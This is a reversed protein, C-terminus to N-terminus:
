NIRRVEIREVMRASRAPKLDGEVVLRFPGDAEPIPAGDMEDAVIVRAARVAADTEALSLAVRYGDRASVLVIHTLEAGRLSAGSPAGVRELLSTLVVGRFVHRTGHMEAGVEVRPLAAIDAPSLTIQQGAPGVVTLVGQASARPVSAPGAQAPGAHGGHVGHGAAAQQADIAPTM